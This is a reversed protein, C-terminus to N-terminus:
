QMIFFLFRLKTNILHVIIKCEFGFRLFQFFRFLSVLCELLSKCEISLMCFLGFLGIVKSTRFWIYRMNIADDKRSRRAKKITSTIEIPISAVMGIPWKEKLFLELLSLQSQIQKRATAQQFRKLATVLKNLGLCTLYFVIYRTKHQWVGKSTLVQAHCNFSGLQNEQSCEEANLKNTIFLILKSFCKYQIFNIKIEM